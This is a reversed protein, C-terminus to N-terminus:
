RLAAFPATYEVPVQIPYLAGAVMLVMLVSLAAGISVPLVVALLRNSRSQTQLRWYLACGLHTFLAMVGLFYYPAFFFQFPPVHFGAAAFYFNTDLKFVARGLLVAGVHNLLFFALYVGSGAQLWPMFGRRHKWGRAVFSIGSYIQLLVAAILSVEVVPQRYITRLSQMFAIHAEVGVLGALHNALHFTAYIGLFLASFAHLKRLKM